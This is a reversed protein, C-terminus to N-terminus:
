IRETIRKETIHFVFLCILFLLISIFSFIIFGHLDSSAGKLIFDRPVSVLYHLPNYDTLTALIGTRPKAYLVPTFFMFVMMLISIMNGIDRIIGNLISTFFGLGITFLILPIILIPFLLGMGNPKRGYGIFLVGVMLIQVAFPIIAKGLSAIILSKKSFNIKLIMPGANVLSNSCAVLGNSFFQWFAIGILAYISYPVGIDGISLVGSRNLAIFVAISTIPFLIAWLIGLFSQKYSSLFDRKFLQYTLWWNDRLEEVIQRFISLYGERLFNDPEYIAIKERM